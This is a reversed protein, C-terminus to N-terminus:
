KLSSGLMGDGRKSPILKLEEIHIQTIIMKPVPLFLAQCIAKEYPYFIPNSVYNTDTSHPKDKKIVVMLRDTTNTIPVKWEGRFGADIVGCRQAIGKTGTSGREKLIAVYDNSFASAIGTPIMVTQHPAIEIYDENFNAYIDFGGNELEKTPIIADKRVKAFKVQRSLEDYSIIQNEM